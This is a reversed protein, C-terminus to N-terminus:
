PRTLRLLAGLAISAFDPKMVGAYLAFKKGFDV